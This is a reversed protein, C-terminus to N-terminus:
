DGKLNIHLEEMYEANEEEINPKAELTYIEFSFQLVGDVKVSNTEMPFVAFGERINLHDSFAQELIEQTELLEIENEYRSTPFYYIIVQITRERKYGIYDSTTIMDFDVYLCPREFGESIDSSQIPVDPLVKELTSNIAKAIEKLTLMM